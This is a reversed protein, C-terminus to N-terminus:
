ALGLRKLKQERTETVQQGSGGPVTPNLKGQSKAEPILAKLEEADKELEELTEGRLRAAIELPLQYKAAAKTRLENLELEKLRAQAAQLEKDRENALKEWKQNKALAEREADAKAKAEADKRKKDERELREKIIKDLEAQTFTRGEKTEPSAETQDDLPKVAENNAETNMEETM